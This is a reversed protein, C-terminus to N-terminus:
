LLCIENSILLFIRFEFINIKPLFLSNMKTFESWFACTPGNGPVYTYGQFKATKRSTVGDLIFFIILFIKMKTQYYRTIPPLGLGKVKPPLAWMSHTIKLDMIVLPQRRQGVSMTLLLSPLNVFVANECDLVKVVYGHQPGIERIGAKIYGM